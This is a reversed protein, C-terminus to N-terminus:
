SQKSLHVPFAEYQLQEDPTLLNDPTLYTAAWSAFTSDQHLADRVGKADFSPDYTRLIRVIADIDM